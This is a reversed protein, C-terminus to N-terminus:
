AHTIFPRRPPSDLHPIANIGVLHAAKAGIRFRAFGCNLAELNLAVFGEGPMGLHLTLISGIVGGSSVVLVDGGAGTGVGADPGNTRFAAADARAPLASRWAEVFVAHADERFRDYSRHGEIDIGGRAWWLLAERLKRFHARRSGAADDTDSNGPNSTNRSSASGGSELAADRDGRRHPALAHANAHAHMIQLSDYEDLAARQRAAPVVCGSNRLAQAIADVTERQRRLSGCWISSFGISAEAFYEGLWRAQRHGLESLRDYDDSGFSAQAHRVLYLSPM